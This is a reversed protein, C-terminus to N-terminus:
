KHPTRFNFSIAMFATQPKTIIRGIIVHTIGAVSYSFFQQRIQFFTKVMIYYRSKAIRRLKGPCIIIKSSMMCLNKIVLINFYVTFQQFTTCLSKFCLKRCHAPANHTHHPLFHSGASTFQAKLM